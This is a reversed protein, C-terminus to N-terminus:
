VPQGTILWGRLFQNNESIIRDICRVGCGLHIPKNHELCLEVTIGGIEDPNGIVVVRGITEDLISPAIGDHLRGPYNQHEEARLSVFSKSYQKKSVTHRRM